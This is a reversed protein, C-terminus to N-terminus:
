RSQYHVEEVFAKSEFLAGEHQKGPSDKNKDNRQSFKSFSSARKAAKSQMELATLTIQTVACSEHKKFVSTYQRRTQIKLQLWLTSFKLNRYLPMETM